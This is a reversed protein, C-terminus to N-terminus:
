EVRRSFLEPLVRGEAHSGRAQHIMTGHVMWLGAKSAPCNSTSPTQAEGPANSIFINKLATM